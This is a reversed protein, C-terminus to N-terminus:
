RVLAIRFGTYQDCATAMGEGRASVRCRESPDAWCGGRQIHNDQSPWVVPNTVEKAQYNQLVDMCWERVNGSMDYLGLENPSKQGVEGVHGYNDAVRQYSWKREAQTLVKDGSNRWYLAVADIDNGGSFVNGRSYKGGRAAYEWQAETPFSFRMSGAQSGFMDNLYTTFVECDDWSIFYMPYLNGSCVPLQGVKKAYNNIDGGMVAQWVAQTVEYKSLYFDSLTVLHVPYENDQAAEGQERTGGMYFSGGEIYVFELDITDGYEYSPVRVVLDREHGYLETSQAVRQGIDNGVRESVKKSQCSVCLLACMLSIFVVVRSM